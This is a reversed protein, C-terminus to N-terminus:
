GIIEEVTTEFDLDPTAMIIISAGDKEFCFSTIGDDGVFEFGSYGGISADYTIYGADEEYMRFQENTFPADPYVLISIGSLGNDYMNTYISDEYKSSNLTYGDPIYFSTGGVDVSEGSGLFASVSGLSAILGLTVILLLLIRKKDMIKEGM